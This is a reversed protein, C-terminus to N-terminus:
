GDGGAPACPPLADLRALEADIAAVDNPRRIWAWERFMSRGPQDIPIANVAVELGVERATGGNPLSGALLRSRQGGALVCEYGEGELRPGGHAAAIREVRLAVRGEMLSRVAVEYRAGDVRWNLTAIPRRVNFPAYLPTGDIEPERRCTAASLAILSVWM